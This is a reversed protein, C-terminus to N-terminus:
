VHARGIEVTPSNDRMERYMKRGKDGNLDNLFEAHIFGASQALGPTGLEVTPALKGRGTNGLRQSLLDASNPITM